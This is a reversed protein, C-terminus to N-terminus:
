KNTEGWWFGEIIDKWSNNYMFLAPGLLRVLGVSKLNPKVGGVIFILNFYHRTKCDLM